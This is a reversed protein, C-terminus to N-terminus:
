IHEYQHSLSNGYLASDGMQRSLDEEAEDKARSQAGLKEFSASLIASDQTYKGSAFKAISAAKTEM